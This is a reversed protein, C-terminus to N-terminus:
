NGELFVIKLQFINTIDTNRAV